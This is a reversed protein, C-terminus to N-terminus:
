TKGLDTPIDDESLCKHQHKFYDRVLGKAHKKVTVKTVLKNSTLQHSLSRALSKFLLKSAFKGEKYHPTLYKVVADAVIKHFGKSMKEEQRKDELSTGPARENDEVKPDFTVHKRPSGTLASSDNYNSRKNILSSKIERERSPTGVGVRSSCDAANGPPSNDSTAQHSGELGNQLVLSSQYNGPLQEEDKVLVPNDSLSPLMEEKEEVDHVDGKTSLLTEEKLHYESPIDRHACSADQSRGPSDSDTTSERYGISTSFGSMEGLQELTRVAKTSDSGNGALLSMKNDLVQDGQHMQESHRETRHEVLNTSAEMKIKEVSLRTSERENSREKQDIMTVIGADDKETEEDSANYEEVDFEEGELFSCGLNDDCDGDEFGEMGEEMGEEETSTGDGGVDGNWPGEVGEEVGDSKVEWRRGDEDDRSTMEMKMPGDSHVLSSAKVFGGSSKFTAFIGGKKSGGSGKTSGLKLTTQKSNDRGKLPEQAALLSSATCFGSLSPLRPGNSTSSSSVKPPIGGKMTDEEDAASIFLDHLRGEKTKKNIEGVQGFVKAKYLNCTKAAQIASHEASIACRQAKDENSTLGNSEDSFAARINERLAKDLLQMCYERVQITLGPVTNSKPNKLKCNPDIEETQRRDAKMKKRKRRRFEAQVVDRLGSSNDDDDDDDTNFDDDDSWDGPKRKKGVYTVDRGYRGGGYLDDDHVNLPNKEIYTRGMHNKKAPGGMIGRQMEDIRKKVVEPTKCVDCMSGCSPLKDDFYKAISEHRCKAEECFKVLAEFSQMSAKSPKGPSSSFKRKRKKSNACAMERTILFAVQNREQRSYYLRCRSPIGDRGARGSEQYYGAMSKPINYHAVFRVTAKDVGMGFSITAVIVKVEGNMWQEQVSTRDAAKMGGHYARATLGQRSLGGAVTVCADRTRCYVIGCGSANGLAEDKQLLKLGFDKLHGLPDELVDKYVVDYFLNERFCGARFETVPARMHLQQIIDKRVNDTATATLAVCAISPYEKHLAGLKLYCPRFDHGWQSVCHAEDVVIGNFLGRNDLNKLITMFTSTAATEPTIYLMKIKPKKSYLDSMVMKRKAAPIKSNLSEARIGLEDLHTLQDEILAILPSIVLTVGKKCTAPLQYCLSKGAGTPMLIFVDKKAKFVEETGKKQLESKFSAYGFVDELKDQLSSFSSTLKPDVRGTHKPKKKKSSCSSISSEADLSSTTLFDTIKAGQAVTSKKSVKPM